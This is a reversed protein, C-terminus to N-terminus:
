SEHAAYYGREKKNMDRASIIRISQNRKTFVMSLKRSDNTKGFAAYRIESTSHKEDPLIILPDNFFTQEAEFAEVDHKLRNKDINGSDWQFGLFDPFYDTIM